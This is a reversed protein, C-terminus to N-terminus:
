VEVSLGDFAVEIGHPAFFAELDTHLAKGNHSFHNVFVRTESTLCGLEALRDRFALVTNVGMHGDRLDPTGLACTCDLSVLDLRVGKLCEWESEALYGTDNALLFNKGGRRIVYILGNLGPCHNARLPLLEIEGDRLWEGPAAPLPQLRLDRLDYINNSHSAVFSLIACFISPAGIITLDHTVQSYWPSRRWCFEAPSLHDEHPHTFIVRELRTLDIQFEAVQRFADSGFDVMTDSDVLYSCRSRFEKGGLKKARAWLPCECWLAPIGEAAATGLFTVKM